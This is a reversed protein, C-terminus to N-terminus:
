LVHRSDRFRNGPMRGKICEILKQMFTKEPTIWFSISKEAINGARDRARAKVEYEGSGRVTYKQAQEKLNLKQIEGNIQVQEIQDEKCALTVGLTCRKEYKGNKKVNEFIIEPETHDIVFDTKEQAKNGAADAAIIELRHGGERTVAEGMHYLQGDLRIEYTYTTLDRILEEKSADLAFRKLYAQELSEVQRIVPKTRDIIIQM